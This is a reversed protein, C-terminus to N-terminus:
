LPRLSLAHPSSFNCYMQEKYVYMYLKTDISRFSWKFFEPKQPKECNNSSNNNTNNNSSNTEHQKGGWMQRIQIKDTMPGFFHLCFLFIFYFLFISKTYLFYEFYLDLNWTLDFLPLHCIAFSGYSSASLCNFQYLQGSLTNVRPRICWNLRALIYLMLFSLNQLVKYRCLFASSTPLMEHPM